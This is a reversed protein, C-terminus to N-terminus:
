RTTSALIYMPTALHSLAVLHGIWTTWVRRFVFPLVALGAEVFRDCVGEGRAIWRGGIRVGVILADFFVFVGLAADV